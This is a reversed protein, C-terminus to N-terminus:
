TASILDAPDLTGDDFAALVRDAEDGYTAAYAQRALYNEDRVLWGFDKGAMAAIIRLRRYRTRDYGILAINSRTIKIPATYPGAELHITVPEATAHAHDLAAALREDMTDGVYDRTDLIQNSM